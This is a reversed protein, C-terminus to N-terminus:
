FSELVGRWKAKVEEITLVEPRLVVDDAVYYLCVAIQDEPIGHRLSYAMRYLALQLAREAIEEDGQPPVGTKWDVIEITKGPLDRDDPAVDFVADIKCIFTNQDITVQIESEVERATMTAWRSKDFNAQLAELADPSQVELEDILDGLSDLVETNAVLGYRQEVWTHFLTGTMTALYPKEPVPRRFKEAMAQPDKVFDKFRSAPIRVPLKVRSANSELVQAEHVM